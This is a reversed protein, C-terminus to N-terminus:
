DPMLWLSHRVTAVTLDIIILRYRQVQTAEYNSHQFLTMMNTLKQDVITLLNCGFTNFSRWVFSVLCPQAPDPTWLARIVPLSEDLSNTEPWILYGLRVPSDIPLTYDIIAVILVVNDTQPSRLQAPWGPQDINAGGAPRTLPYYQGIQIGPWDIILLLLLFTPKLLWDDAWCYSYATVNPWYYCQDDSRM